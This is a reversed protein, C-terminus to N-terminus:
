RNAAFKEILVIDSPSNINMFASRTQESDEFPLWGVHCRKFFGRVSYDKKGALFEELAGLISVNDIAHLPEIDQNIRPVLIDTKNNNYHDIQRIIYRKDLLPMDGAFVFLSESSSVKLAAHIGGLPGIGSFHDRIIKIDSYGIFEQPYNTVIIIENFIDKITEIIRFLITKGDVIINAKTVGDFRKNDGGALIVGSINNVM